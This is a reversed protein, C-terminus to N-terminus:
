QTKRGEPAPAGRAVWHQMQSLISCDGDTVSCNTPFGLADVAGAHGTGRKGLVIVIAKLVALLLTLCIVGPNPSKTEVNKSHRGSADHV